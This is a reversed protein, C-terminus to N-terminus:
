LFKMPSIEPKRSLNERIFWEMSNEPSFEVARCQDPSCRQPPLTEPERSSGRAASRLRLQFNGPLHSNFAGYISKVYLNMYNMYTWLSNIDRYLITQYRYTYIYLYIFTIKIYSNLSCQVLNSSIAPIKQECATIPNRDRKSRRSTSRKSRRFTVRVSVYSICLASLHVCEFMLQLQLFM